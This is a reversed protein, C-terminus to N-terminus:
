NTGSSVATQEITVGTIHRYYLSVMRAFEVTIETELEPEDSILDNTATGLATSLITAVRLQGADVAPHATHLRQFVEDAVERTSARRVEQLAPIARMVRLIWEGGSTKRAVRRVKTLLEARRAIVQELPTHFDLEGKTLWNFVVRDEAKMLRAGMERLVAYKNPFYRYLAPPTIRARECIMNTSLREVGVESLLEGTVLLILEFTVKSRDQSPAIKTDLPVTAEGGTKAGRAKAM